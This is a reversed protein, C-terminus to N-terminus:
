CFKKRQKNRNSFSIVSEDKEQKLVALEGHLQHFTKLSGFIGNFFKAIEDISNFSKSQACKFAEGSLRMKISNALDSENAAPIVSCAERCGELFNILPINFGNYKPILKIADEISVNRFPTLYSSTQNQLNFTSPKFHVSRRLVNNILSILTSSLRNNRKHAM